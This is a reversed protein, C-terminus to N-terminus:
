KTIAQKSKVSEASNLNLKDLVEGKVDYVSLNFESATAEVLCYHHKNYVVQSYPNQKENSTTDYLPAGGGGAVIYYVSEKQSREYIHDHGSFVMTVGHKELLPIIHMQMQAIESEAPVGQDNLKGHPGSTFVPSHLVVIKWNLASNALDNELWQYQTSGPLFSSFYSDLFTFHVPGRDFSYWRENDPLNFFTFYHISDNEHNGLVPYLPVRALLERAPAFFERSWGEFDLGNDLLDGTHIWLDLKDAANEVMASIVKEHDLPFTRTDGYVAFTVSDSQTPPTKFTAGQSKVQGFESTAVDVYFEYKTEPALGNIKVEHLLPEFELAKNTWKADGQKRFVVQAQPLIQTQWKITVETPELQQLYPAVDLVKKRRAVASVAEKLDFVGLPRVNGHVPQWFCVLSDKYVDFYMVGYDNDDDDDDDYPLTASGSSFVFRGTTADEYAQITHNHGHLYGIVGASTLVYDLDTGQIEPHPYHTVVFKYPKDNSLFAGKIWQRRQLSLNPWNETSDFGVFLFNGHELSWYDSGFYNRYLELKTQRMEESSLSREVDDAPWITDHNGPVFYVPAEIKSLIDKIRKHENETGSHTIDGPFIVIDPKLSNVLEVAEATRQWLKEDGPPPQTDSMQVIRFPYTAPSEGAASLLNSFVLVIICV